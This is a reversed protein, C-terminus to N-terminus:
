QIAILKKKEELKKPEEKPISLHLIGDKFSAKVDEERVGEGVYFTRSCSGTYRERHIYNGNEDKRDNSENRHATITMYGNELEANIEDKSFGPLDIEMLYAGDEEKIDTKMMVNKTEMRNFFPDKFMEDFLDFGFNRRPMMLM